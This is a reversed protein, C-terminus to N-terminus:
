CLRQLFVPLLSSKVWLGHDALERLKWTKRPAPKSEESGGVTGPGADGGGGVGGDRHM